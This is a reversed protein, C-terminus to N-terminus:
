MGGENTGDGSATEGIEEHISLGELVCSAVLNLSKIQKM